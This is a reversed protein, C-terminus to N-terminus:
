PTPQRLFITREWIAALTAAASDIETVPAGVLRELFYHVNMCVLARATAQPDLGASNVAATAEAIKEAAVAIVPEIVAHWIEAADADRESAVALARLVAGHRHYLVAANRLAERGARIMDTANRWQEVAVDTQERLPAILSAILEARDRFYVYFSKRSLTTRNMIASVTVEHSPLETLLEAAADLIERRAQEPSRRRRKPQVPDPDTRV